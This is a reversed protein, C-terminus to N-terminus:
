NSMRARPVAGCEPCRDPSTRLDYGCAHCRGARRARRGAIGRRVGSGLRAASLLATGAAVVWWPVSAVEVHLTRQWRDRIVAQQAPDIVPDCTQVRYDDRDSPASPRAYGRGGPRPRLRVRLGHYTQVITGDAAVDVTGDGSSQFYLSAPVFLRTLIVHAAVWRAPDDLADLLAAAAQSGAFPQHRAPDPEPRGYAHLYIAVGEAEYYPAFTQTASGAAGRPSFHPEYSRGDWPDRSPHQVEWVVQDNSIRAALAAPTTGAPARVVGSALYPDFAVDWPAPLPRSAPPPPVVAGASPPPTWLELGRPGVAVAYRGGPLALRARAM